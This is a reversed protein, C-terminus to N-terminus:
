PTTTRGFIHVAIRIDSVLHRLSLKDILLLNKGAAADTVTAYVKWNASRVGGIIKIFGLRTFLTKHLAVAQRRKENTASFKRHLRTAQDRVGFRHRSWRM